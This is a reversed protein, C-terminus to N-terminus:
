TGRASVWCVRNKRPKLGYDLVGPTWEASGFKIEPRSCEKFAM